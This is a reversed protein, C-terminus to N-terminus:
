LSSILPLIYLPIKYFTDNKEFEDKTILIGKETGPYSLSFNAIALPINGPHNRYKVEIPTIKDPRVILFDIESKSITRYYRLLDSGCIDRLASYAINEALAGSLTDLNELVGGQLYRLVGINQFYVKPMKSIEKRVNTYYPAVLDIIYTGELIDLYHNLKRSDLSTIASLESRNVLNGVQHSLIRLMNNFAGVSEIRLFLAIDKSIYTSIIEKLVIMKKDSDRTMIVEPYSGYQIYDLFHYRIDDMDFIQDFLTDLPYKRYTYKSFYSLYEFFSIGSIEFDIKRGTLFESNKTIELSSSGSVILQIRDKLTDFVVKLFLWAERIYQFEDIFIYLRNEALQTSLFRAFTKGDQFITNGLENDASFSLTKEWRKELNQRLSQMITTKGVQRPGKLILIKETNIWKEIDPIITRAIM